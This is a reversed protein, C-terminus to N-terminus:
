QLTKNQYNITHNIDYHYVYNNIPPFRDLSYGLIVKKLKCISHERKRKIINDIITELDRWRTLGCQRYDTTEIGNFIVQFEELCFLKDLDNYKTRLYNMDESNLFDEFTDM